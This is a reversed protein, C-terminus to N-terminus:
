MKRYRSKFSAVRKAYYAYLTDSPGSCYFVKLGNERFYPNDVQGVLRCSDYTQEVDEGLEHNVYILSQNRVSDPAWLIFSDNFCIPDPLGHSHGYYQIAGAMGYNDAFIVCNQQEEVSLETYQRVVIDGLQKWGTMDAFDQPIDHVEGDEWRNIFPAVPETYARLQDYHLLPVNIPIIPISIMVVLALIAYEIKRHLKEEIVVGGMAFLVPYLGLTYYDKGRLILLIAITILVLVSLFRYSRYKKFVLFGTLGAVWVILAQINMLLQSLLFGSLTVHILQTRQLETMHYIVPWNHNAQWVLNPAVIALFLFCGAVFYRSFLLKRHQSILLAIFFGAMFFAIAYKNMFGLGFCFFLLIWLKQNKFRILQVAIFASLLWFFQNFAVPQFLSNTRLYVPSFLYAAMAMLMATRRGGLSKVLLAILVISLSGVLAPFFRLAFAHTGFLWTAVRGVVGILPPVSIFGWDLHQGLSYYLLADRHLEYNNAISLHFCFKVLAFILVILWDRKSLGFKM